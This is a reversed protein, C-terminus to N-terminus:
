AKDYIGTNNSDRTCCLCVSGKTSFGITKYEVEDTICYERMIEAKDRLLCNLADYFDSVENEDNFNLIYKEGTSIATSQFFDVTRHALYNYFEKSMNLM